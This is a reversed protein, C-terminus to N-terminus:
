ENEESRVPVRLCQGAVMWLVERGCAAVRQNLTGLEDVFARTAADMPLLGAGIENGVIIWPSRLRPLLALLAEREAEWDGAPAHGPPPFRWQTLWLTLCDVLLLHDAADERALTAALAHPAELTAFAAPRQARHRAIRERMGPDAPLATAIVSVRRGAGGQLWAWARREAERSKGSKQGGTVFCRPHDM